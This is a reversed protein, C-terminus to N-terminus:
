KKEIVITVPRFSISYIGFGCNIGGEATSIDPGFENRSTIKIGSLMSQHLDFGLSSRSLDYVHTYCSGLQENKTRENDKTSFTFAASRGPSTISKIIYGAPATYVPIEWSEKVGSRDGGSEQGSIFIRATLTNTGEGQYNCSFEIYLENGKAFENDGSFKQTPFFSRTVSPTFTVSQTVILPVKVGPTQKLVPVNANAPQKANPSLKVQAKIIPSFLLACCFATVLKKM